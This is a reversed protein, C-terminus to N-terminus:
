DLVQASVQHRSCEWAAAETPFDTLLPSIGHCLSSGGLSDVPFLPGRGVSYLRSSRCSIIIDNSNQWTGPMTNQGKCM